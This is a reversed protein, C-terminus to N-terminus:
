VEAERVVLRERLHRCLWDFGHEGSARGFCEAVIGNRRRGRKVVVEFGSGIVPSEVRIRHLVTGPAIREPGREPSPGEM